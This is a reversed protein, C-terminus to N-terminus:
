AALFEPLWVAGPLTALLMMSRTVLALAAAQEPSAGLQTYLLTIIVERVGYGNVSIPLLTLFYTIVSVGIVHFLGVPIELGLAVSWIGFFSPFIALWGVSLARLFTLPSRFWLRFVTVFRWLRRVGDKARALWVGQGALASQRLLEDHIWPAFLFASIPAMSTMSLVKLLRDVVLSALGVDKKPTLRLLSLYRVTDGGVTSPLFNSAFAGLFVIKATTWFPLRIGGIRLVTHWRWANGVNNLVYLGLALALLGLPIRRTYAWFVAWDQRALLWGFLGLSLLSGAWRLAKSRPSSKATKMM